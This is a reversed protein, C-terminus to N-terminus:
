TSALQIQLKRGMWNCHALDLSNSGLLETGDGRGHCFHQLEDGANRKVAAHLLRLSRVGSCKNPGVAIVLALIGSLIKM